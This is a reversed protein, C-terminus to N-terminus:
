QTSPTNTIEQKFAHLRRKIILNIKLSSTVVAFTFGAFNSHDLVMGLGVGEFSVLEAARHFNEAEVVVM